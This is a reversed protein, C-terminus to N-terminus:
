LYIITEGSNYPNVQFSTVASISGLYTHVASQVRGTGHGHIVTVRDLGALIATDLWKELESLAETVRKGHLDLTNRPASRKASTVAPQLPGVPAKGDLSAKKQSKEIQAGTCTMSLSGLM